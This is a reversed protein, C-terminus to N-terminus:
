TKRIKAGPNGVNGAPQLTGFEAGVVGVTTGEGPVTLILFAKHLSSNGIRSLVCSCKRSNRATKIWKRTWHLAGVRLTLSDKPFILLNLFPLVTGLFTLLILFTLDPGVSRIHLVLLLRLDADNHRTVLAESLVLELHGSSHVTWQRM